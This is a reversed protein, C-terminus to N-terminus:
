SSAMVPSPPQQAEDRRTIVKDILGFKVADEPAMFNDRDV